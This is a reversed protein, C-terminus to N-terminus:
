RDISLIPSSQPEGVRRSTLLRGDPTSPPRSPSLPRVFALVAAAEVAVVVARHAAYALIAVPLPPPPKVEANSAVSKLLRYEPADCRVPAPRPLWGEPDREPLAAIAAAKLEPCVLVLEPSFRDDRPAAM